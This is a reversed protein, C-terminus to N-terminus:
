NEISARCPSHLACRLLHPAEISRFNIIINSITFLFACVIVALWWFPCLRLACVHVCAHASRWYCRHWTSIFVFLLITACRRMCDCRIEFTLLYISIFKNLYNVDILTTENSNTEAGLFLLTVNRLPRFPRVFVNPCLNLFLKKRRSHPTEHQPPAM